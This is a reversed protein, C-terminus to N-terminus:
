SWESKIDIRERSVAAFGAYLVDMGISFKFRREINENLLWVFSLGLYSVSLRGRNAAYRIVLGQFDCHKQVVWAGKRGTLNYLRADGGIDRLDTLKFEEEWTASLYMQLWKEFSTNRISISICMPLNQALPKRRYPGFEFRIAM